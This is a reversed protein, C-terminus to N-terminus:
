FYEILIICPKECKSGRGKKKVRQENHARLRGASTDKMTHAVYALADPRPATIGLVASNGRGLSGVSTTAVPPKMM